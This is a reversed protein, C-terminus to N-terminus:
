LVQTKHGANYSIHNQRYLFQFAGDVLRQQTRSHISTHISAVLIESDLGQKKNHRGQRLWPYAASKGWV